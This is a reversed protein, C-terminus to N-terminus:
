SLSKYVHKWKHLCPHKSPNIFKYVSNKSAVLSSSIDTVSLRKDDREKLHLYVHGAIITIPNFSCFDCKLQVINEKITAITKYPLNLSKITYELMNCPDNMSMTHGTLFDVVKSIYKQEQKNCQLRTELQPLPLILGHKVTAIFLCGAIIFLNPINRFNVKCQNYLCEIDSIYSNHIQLVDLLKIIDDRTPNNINLDLINKNFYRLEINNVLLLTDVVMGCEICIISGEHVDTVTNIHQCM